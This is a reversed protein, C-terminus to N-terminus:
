EEETEPLGIGVTFGRKAATGNVKDGSYYVAGVALPMSDVIKFKDGPLPIDCHCDYWGPIVVGAFKANVTKGAFPLRVAGTFVGDRARYSLRTGKAADVLVFKAAAVEVETDPLSSLAGFKASGSFDSADFVLSLTSPLTAEECLRVLSVSSSFVSGWAKCDHLIGNMEWTSLAGECNVVARRSSSGAANPKLMLPAAFTFKPKSVLVALVGYGDQTAVLTSTGSVRQGTPLAGTWKAKGSGAAVNITLYGAGAPDESSGAVEAFAVTYSGAFSNGLAGGNAVVAGSELATEYAPDAVVAELAGDSAISLTLVEGTRASLAAIAVGDVVAQWRGSFSTKRTSGLRAYKASLKNNKKLSLEVTGELTRVGDVREVYLPVTMALPKSLYPNVSSPDLASISLAVAPGFGSRATKDEFAVAVDFSGTRTTAGKLTVCGSAKDYVVKVGSPLRGSVVKVAVTDGEAVNYLTDCLSSAADVGTYLTVDYATQAMAPKDTDLIEVTTASVAGVAAVAADALRLVFAARSGDGVTNLGFAVTKDSSDGEAWTVVTDEWTFDVGEIATSASADLVVRVSAAGSVGGTRKLTVRGEGTGSVFLSSAAAFAVEGPHLTIESGVTVSFTSDAGVLASGGFSSVRLYVGDSEGKGFDYEVAESGSALTTQAGNAVRIISLTVDRDATKGTVSFKVSGVPVGGVAYVKASDNVQLECTVDDGGATMALSTTPVYGDGEGAGEALLLLDNLRAINESPDYNLVGKGLIDGRDRWASFRAVVDDDEGILMFNPNGIRAATSGPALWEQTFHTVLAIGAAADEVSIGKRTMYGAGSAIPRGEITTTGTEYSLLRALNTGAATAPTSARGQDFLVMIVNNAQMWAEFEDSTLLSTEAANCYPCWYVGSFNAILYAKEGNARAAAVKAKATEYDLTWDGWSLEDATKEGICYPNRVGNAQVEVVYIASTSHVGGQSDLLELAVAEGAGLGEPMAVDIYKLTEGESWAVGYETGGAVLTNQAQATATRTLPVTVTRGAAYGVEVELRVNANTGPVLFDGGDYVYGAVVSDLSRILQSALSGGTALMMGDRGSFAKYGDSGKKPTSGDRNWYIGVYPIAANTKPKAFSLADSSSHSYVMVPKNREQWALFEDTLCARQLITCNGCSVGGYVVLLPINHSDAYTRAASYNSNWQGPVIAGDSVDLLMPELQLAAKAGGFALVAVAAMMLRAGLKKM